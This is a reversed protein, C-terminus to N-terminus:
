GGEALRVLISKLTRFEDAGIRERFEREIRVKIKDADALAAAGKATYRVVRARRDVPDPARELIGERALEDILQQVAQKTLGSRAVIDSQPTEGRALHGLLQAQSLGFWGHGAAQMEEVFRGTWLRGV